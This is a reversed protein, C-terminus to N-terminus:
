YCTINEGNLNNTACLHTYKIAPHLSKCMEHPYIGATVTQLIPPQYPKDPDRIGWGIVTASRNRFDTAKDPLRVIKLEEMCPVDIEVVALDNYMYLENGDWANAFGPHVKVSKVRFDRHESEMVTDFDHEGVRVRIYSPVEEMSYSLCHAATLVHVPTILSGVCMPGDMEYKDIGAVMWPFEGPKTSNGAVIRGSSSFSRSMPCCITERIM